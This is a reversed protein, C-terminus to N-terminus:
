AYPNPGFTDTWCSPCTRSKIFERDPGSLHAFAEQMPMRRQSWATFRARSVWFSGTRGCTDCTVELPLDLPPDSDLRKWHAPLEPM